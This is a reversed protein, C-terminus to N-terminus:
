MGYEVAALFIFAAVDSNLDRWSDEFIVSFTEDIYGFGADGAHATM